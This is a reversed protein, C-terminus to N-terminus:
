FSFNNLGFLFIELCAPSLPFFVHYSLHPPFPLHKLCAPFSKSLVLIQCITYSGKHGRLSFIGAHQIGGRSYRSPAARTRDTTWLLPLSVSIRPSFKLNYKINGSLFACDHQARQLSHESPQYLENSGAATVLSTETM